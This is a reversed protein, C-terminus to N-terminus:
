IEEKKLLENKAFYFVKNVQGTDPDQIHNRSQEVTWGHAVFWHALKIEDNLSDVGSNKKYFIQVEVGITWGKFNANAYGSPENLWESIRCITKDKNGAESQTLEGVKLLDIWKPNLAKILDRAQTTPLEM